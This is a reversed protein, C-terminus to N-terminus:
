AMLDAMRNVKSKTGPMKRINLSFINRKLLIVSRAMNTSLRTNGSQLKERREISLMDATCAM